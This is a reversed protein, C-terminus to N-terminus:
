LNNDEEYAVQMLTLGHAPATIGLDLRNGSSLAKELCDPPLKGLGVYILSGALIRVMNYLFSRGSVTLEILEGEQAIDARRIDRITTKAESGAAAFAKFDHEGLVARAALRMKEVDLPHVVHARQLRYLASAHPSNHIQYRYTKGRASYRAHFDPPVAISDTVRIDDPLRTNLAFCFKEAPIRSQTDFHVTQGLAHVGADTRSAGVTPANEGTLSHLAKELSQQVSPANLQRQWGAYATGDYSVTLRIRRWDSM